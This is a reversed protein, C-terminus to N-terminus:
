SFVHSGIKIAAPMEKAWGSVATEPNFFFLCGGTPDVGNLAMEAALLANEDPPLNISGDLVPTFQDKEYIVKTITKPFRPDDLRNFVVAGVAVQGELSEGRAEAHILRALLVFEERTLVLDRSVSV